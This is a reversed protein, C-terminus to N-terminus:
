FLNIIANYTAASKIEIILERSNGLASFKKPHDEIIAILINQLDRLPITYVPKKLVPKIRVIIGVLKISYLLSLGGNQVVRETDFCNGLVDIILVNKFGVSIFRKDCVLYRYNIKDIFSKSIVLAPFKIELNM